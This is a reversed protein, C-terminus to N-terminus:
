PKIDMIKEALKGAAEKDDKGTIMECTRSPSFAYLKVLSNRAAAKGVRAPDVGLDAASWKLIQKKAANIIGWGTPIRAQGMESSLTVVAPLGAEYIEFGNAVVREVKLKGDAVALGKARIVSPINLYEAIVSGIVGNDWDAAQRGCLILDCKGIKKVAEALILATSFPDSDDFAPDNIHVAEDAGMAVAKRLVEVAFPGALTVATIKGGKAAEKIKLAAEVALADYPNIVLPMGEPPIVRNTKGDVSFKAPPMDPDLVPKIFVIIEM